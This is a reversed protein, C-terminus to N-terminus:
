APRGVQPHLPILREVRVPLLAKSVAAGLDFVTSVVNDAKCSSLLPERGGSMFGVSSSDLSSRVFREWRLSGAPVTSM